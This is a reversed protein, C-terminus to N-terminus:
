CLIECKLLFTLLAKPMENKTKEGKLELNLKVDYIKALILLNELMAIRTYKFSEDKWAGVDIKFIDESTIKDIFGVTDSRNDLKYDHFLVVTKKDNLVTVDTEVCKAGLFVAEEFALMTNEPYKYSYGRHAIVPRLYM